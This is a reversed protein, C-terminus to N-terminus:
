WEKDKYPTSEFGEAQLKGVMRDLKGRWLKKFWATNGFWKVLTPSVAYYLRVFARGHWTRALTFDRYRRLTWVQPCDYSGYVATAVYCGSKKVPQTQPEPVTPVVYSPDYFKIIEHCKRIEKTCAQKSSLSVFKSVPYTKIGGSFDVKYSQLGMYTENMKILNQCAKIKLAKGKDNPNEKSLDNPLAYNLMKMAVDGNNMMQDLAYDTPHGDNSSNYTRLSNNWLKIGGNVLAENCKLSLDTLNTRESLSVKPLEDEPTDPNLRKLANRFAIQIQIEQMIYSIPFQLYEKWTNPFRVIHDVKLNNIALIIKYFEKYGREGLSYLEEEDKANEFANSIGTILENVRNNALTSQWAAVMGKMLWAETHKPDIELIKNCYEEAEKNNGSNRANQAMTFYNEIKSTNDTKIPAPSKVPAGAEATDGEEMMMKKAEEVSYKTGCEQCVFMGDQKVLNTSGCMECALQKM